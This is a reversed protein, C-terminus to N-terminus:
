APLRPLRPDDDPAELRLERMLRAVSTRAHREIDVAPHPKHQGFRDVVTLGEAQVMTRAADATDSAECLRRLLEIQHDELDYFELVDNWLQASRELHDPPPPWEPEPPPTPAPEAPKKPM